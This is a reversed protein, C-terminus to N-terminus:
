STIATFVFALECLNLMKFLSYMYSMLVQIAGAHVFCYVGNETM